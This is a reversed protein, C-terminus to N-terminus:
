WYMFDLLISPVFGKCSQLDLEKSLSYQDSNFVIGKFANQMIGAARHLISCTDDQYVQSLGLQFEGVDIQDKGHEIADLFSVSSSCVLDSKGRQSIFVIKSGYYNKLKEKM